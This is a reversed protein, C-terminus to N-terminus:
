HLITILPRLLTIFTSVDHWAVDLIPGDMSQVAKPVTKGSAEVEWCRVQLCAVKYIVM